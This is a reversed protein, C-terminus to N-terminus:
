IFPFDSFLPALIKGNTVSSLHKKKQSYRKLRSVFLFFTRSVLAVRPNFCCFRRLFYKFVSDCRESRESPLILSVRLTFSDFIQENKKRQQKKKPKPRRLLRFEAAQQAEELPRGVDGVSVVDDVVVVGGTGATM